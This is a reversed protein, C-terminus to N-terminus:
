CNSRHGTGADIVGNGGDASVVLFRTDLSPQRRM